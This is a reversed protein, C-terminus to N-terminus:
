GRDKRPAARRRGGGVRRGPPGVDRGQTAERGAPYAGSPGQKARPHNTFPLRLLTACFKDWTRSPETAETKCVHHSPSAANETSTPMKM